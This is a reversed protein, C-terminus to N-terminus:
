PIKEESATAEPQEPTSDVPKRLKVEARTLWRKEVDHLDDQFVAGLAHVMGGLATTFLSVIVHSLPVGQLVIQDGYQIASASHLYVWYWYAATGLGYVSLAISVLDVLLALGKKM